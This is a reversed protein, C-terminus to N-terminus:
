SVETEGVDELQDAQLPLGAHERQAALVVGDRHREEVAFDDAGVREVAAELGAEAVNQDLAPEQRLILEVARELDLFLRQLAEAVDQHVVADDRGVRQLLRM